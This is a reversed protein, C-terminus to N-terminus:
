YNELKTIHFFNSVYADDIEESLNVIGKIEYKGLGGKPTANTITQYKIVTTDNFTRSLHTTEAKPLTKYEHKAKTWTNIINETSQMIKSIEDWEKSFEQDGGDFINNAQNNSAM